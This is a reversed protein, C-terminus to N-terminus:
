NKTYLYGTPNHKQNMQKNMDINRYGSPDQVSTLRLNEHDSEEIDQENLRLIWGDSDRQKEVGNRECTKKSWDVMNIYLIECFKWSKKNKEKMVNYEQLVNNVLVFDNHSIYSNILAKSILIEITDLKTKLFSM